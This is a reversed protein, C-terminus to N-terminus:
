KGRMLIKEKKKNKRRTKPTKGKIKPSGRM